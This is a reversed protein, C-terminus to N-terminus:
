QCLNILLRGMLVNKLRIILTNLNKPAAHRSPMDYFESYVTSCQLIRLSSKFGRGPNTFRPSSQAQSYQYFTETRM